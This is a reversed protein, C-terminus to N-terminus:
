IQTKNIDDYNRDNCQSDCYHCLSPTTHEAHESRPHRDERANQWVETIGLGYGSESSTPVEQQTIKGSDHGFGRSM